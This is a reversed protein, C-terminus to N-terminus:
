IDSVSWKLYFMMADTEELFYITGEKDGAYIHSHISAINEDIWAYIQNINAEAYKRSMVVRYVPEFNRTIGGGIRNLPHFQSDDIKSFGFM